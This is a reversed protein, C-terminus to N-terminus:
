DRQGIYSRKKYLALGKEVGDNIKDTIDANASAEMIAQENELASAIRNLNGNIEHALRFYSGVIHLAAHIVGIATQDPAAVAVAEAIETLRKDVGAIFTEHDYGTMM